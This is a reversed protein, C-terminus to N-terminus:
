IGLGGCYIVVFKTAQVNSISRERNQLGSNSILTNAAAHEEGFVRPSFGEEPGPLEQCEPKHCRLEM